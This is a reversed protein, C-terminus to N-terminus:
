ISRGMFLMSHNKFPVEKEFSFQNKRYFNTNREGPSTIAHIGKLHQQLCGEILASVLKEGVGLGRASGDVNIHLGVPFDAYFENFLEMGPINFNELVKNIDPSGVIYGIVQQDILALWVWDPFHNLYQGLWRDFFAVRSAEDKFSQVSSSAYFIGSLQEKERESQPLRRVITVKTM